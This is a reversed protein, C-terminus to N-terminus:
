RSKTSTRLFSTAKGKSLKGWPSVPHRGGKSKGEGGGHPHDVPNMAVGRVSPRRNRWRAEGAKKLKLNKHAENSVVGITAMAKNSLNYLKGSHLRLLVSATKPDKKIVKAYTGAARMLQAGNGPKLEVNHVLTGIPINELPLANGAIIEVNTGSCLLDGPKINNPAIIYSLIGNKYNLLAINASRNPDYDIQKVIAPVNFLSRKFDIIRYLQKHGGGRHRVTIRGQNNRGTSKKKYKTLKKISLSKM